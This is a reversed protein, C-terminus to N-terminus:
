HHYQPQSFSTQQYPPSQPQYPQAQLLPHNVDAGTPYYNPPPVSVPNYETRTPDYQQQQPSSQQNYSQQGLLPNNHETTTQDTQEQPASTPSYSTKTFEYEPMSRDTTNNEHTMYPDSILYLIGVFTATYFLNAFFISTAWADKPYSKRRILSHIDYILQVLVM